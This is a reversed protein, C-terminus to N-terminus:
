DLFQMDFSFPDKEMPDITVQTATTGGTIQVRLINQESYPRDMIWFHGDGQLYLVPKAFEAVSERFVDTFPKFKAPGAEIMNAHGFVVAASVKDKLNVFNERVWQADDQLRADWEAQDHVKSGVLNLGLFLVKDQVWQINEPRGQQGTVPPDFNWHTHFGLFHAKWYDFARAADDCDNYENDGPIIFTPANFKRLQAAVDAYVQEDCPASGRKIDGVHFVFSSNAKRNHLAILSDLGTRQGDSYPVDGIATFITKPIIEEQEGEPGSHEKTGEGCSLFILTGFFLIFRPIMKINLLIFM